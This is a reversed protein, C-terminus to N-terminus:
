GHCVRIWLDAFQASKEIEACDIPLPSLLHVRSVVVQVVQRQRHLTQPHCGEVRAGHDKEMEPHMLYSAKTETLLLCCLRPTATIGM